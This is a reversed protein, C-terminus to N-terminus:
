GRFDRMFLLLKEAAAKLPVVSSTGRICWGRQILRGTAGRYNWFPFELIPRSLIHVM